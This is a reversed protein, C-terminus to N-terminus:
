DNTITCKLNQTHWGKCMNYPDERCGEINFIIKVNNRLFFLSFCKKHVFDHSECVFANIKTKERPIECPLCTLSLEWSVIRSNKNVQRAQPDQVIGLQSTAVSGARSVAIECTLIHLHFVDYTRWEWNWTNYYAQSQGATKSFTGQDAPSFIISPLTPHLSVGTHLEWCVRPNSGISNWYQGVALPAPGVNFCFQTMDEHKRLSSDANPYVRATQTQNSCAACHETYSTAHVISLTSLSYDIISLTDCPM